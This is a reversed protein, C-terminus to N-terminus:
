ARRRGFMGWGEMTLVTQGHQNLLEWRSRALGVHPRSAMPRAELVHMRARLTDGPFVPKLWKLGEIGPSGLSSSELLYADVMMRMLMACTHWGSASLAGFLSAAGAAHDLHFPQPDFARAFNLVADRTVVMAGFERVQGPVFDEWYHRTERRRAAADFVLEAAALDELAHGVSKFLTIEDHRTRGPHEGRCLMALTAARRAPDFTRAAQADLLEGAKGLADDTDVFVSARAVCEADAERMAPAFSGVLDLHAGPALWAGRLLPETALTACSVIHARGVAGQLDDAVRADFGEGALQAALAGAAARTRNWVEVAEVPRVTRMAAGVRRAVRGAGVILLRSADARALFSAALASTAVTRQLTIEDGDLQGIPEGTTADFLLYAAHVAPKGLARNGPFACVAKLGFRRGTRWAPMLLVTGDAGRPQEITHVHRQPAECGQVFASRLAEILAALPLRDRTADADFVQM